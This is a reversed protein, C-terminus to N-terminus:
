VGLYHICAQDDRAYITVPINVLRLHAPHMTFSGYFAGFEQDFLTQSGKRISEFGNSTASKGKRRGLDMHQIPMCICEIPRRRWRM